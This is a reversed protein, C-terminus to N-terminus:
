KNYKIKVTEERARMFQIYIGWSEGRTERTKERNVVILVDYNTEM